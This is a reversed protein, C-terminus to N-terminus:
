FEFTAKLLGITVTPQGEIAGANTIFYLEPTISIGKAVGLRYYAGYNYEAVRPLDGGKEGPVSQLVDSNFTGSYTNNSTIFAPQVVALGIADGKRGFPDKFTVGAMWENYSLDGGYDVNDGINLDSLSVNGYSVRGFLSISPSIDWDLHANFTDHQVNNIVGSNFPYRTSGGVSADCFLRNQTSPSEEASGLGSNAANCVTRYYGVGLNVEKFPRFGLEVALQGPGGLGGSGDRSSRGGATAGYYARLDVQPSIKWTLAAGPVSTSLLSIATNRRFVRLAFNKGENATNTNTGLYDINEVRPGFTLRVANDFMPFEYFVKDFTVPQNGNTTEGGQSGLIDIRGVRSFNPNGDAGPTVIPNTGYFSGDGTRGTLRIRLQDGKTGLNRARINFRTRGGFTVNQSSGSIVDAEKDQGSVLEANNVKIGDGGSDAGAVLFIVEADLKATTSFLNDELEQARAELGEIRAKLTALEAKFEEMLRQLSALDDKTVFNGTSGAILENIKELCANLGAAFEYRTLAKNGLYVKSPYGELCGYREVVSKLAQFAWSNPDVDTLESVSSVQAVETTSGDMMQKVSTDPLAFVPLSGLAMVATATVVLSRYEALLNVSKAKM